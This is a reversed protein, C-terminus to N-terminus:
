IIENGYDKVPLKAARRVVQIQRRRGGRGIVGGLEYRLRQVDNCLPGLLVGSNNSLYKPPKRLITLPVVRMITLLPCQFNSYQSVENVDCLCVYLCLACFQQTGCNQCM